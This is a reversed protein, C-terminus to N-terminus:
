AKLTVLCKASGLIGNGPHGTYSQCLRNLIIIAIHQKKNEAAMEAQQKLPLM